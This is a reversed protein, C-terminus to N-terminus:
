PDHKSYPYQVFPNRASAGAELVVTLLVLSGAKTNNVSDGGNLVLVIFSPHLGSCVFIRESLVAGNRSKSVLAFVCLTV